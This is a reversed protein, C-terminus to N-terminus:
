KFPKSITILINLLYGLTQSVLKWLNIYFDLIPHILPEFFINYINLLLNLIAHPRQLFRETARPFNDFIYTVMKLLTLVLVGLKIPSEIMVRAKKIILRQGHESCEYFSCGRTFPIPKEKWDLHWMAWVTLEDGECVREINFKVNSGTSEMLQEFFHMVEEKGEFAKSFSYEEFFCDNSILKRLEKQDKSNICTYFQQIIESPTLLSPQHESNGESSILCHRNLNLIPKHVAKKMWCIHQAHYNTRAETCALTSPRSIALSRPLLQPGAVSRTGQRPTPCRLGLTAM